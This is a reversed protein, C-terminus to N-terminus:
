VSNSIHNTSICQFTVLSLICNAMKDSLSIRNCGYCMVMPPYIRQISNSQQNAPIANTTLLSFSIEHTIALQFFIIWGIIVILFYIGHLSDSRHNAAMSNKFTIFQLSQMNSIHNCWLMLPGCPWSMSRTYPRVRVVLDFALCRLCAPDSTCLVISRLVGLTRLTHPVCGLRVSFVSRGCPRLHV